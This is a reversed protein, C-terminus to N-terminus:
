AAPAVPGRPRSIRGWAVIVVGLLVLGIAGAVLSATLGRPRYEVRYTEGARLDVSWSPFLFSFPTGEEGRFRWAHSYAQQVVLRGRFDASVRFELANAIERVDTARPQDAMARALEDVRTEIRTRPTWADLAPADAEDLLWVRPLPDPLIRGGAPDRPLALDPDFAFDHVVDVGLFRLAGLRRTDIRTEAFVPQLIFDRNALVFTHSLFSKLRTNCVPDFVGITRLDIIANQNPPYASMRLRGLGEDHPAEALAGGFPLAYRPLRPFWGNPRVLAAQAVVIALLIVATGRPRWALVVAGAVFAACAAGYTWAVDGRVDAPLAAFAAPVRAFGDRALGGAWTGGVFVGALVLTVCATTLVIRRTRAPESESTRALTELAMAALVAALDFIWAHYKVLLIESLFPVHALFGFPWAWQLKVLGLLALIAYARARTRASWEGDRTTFALVAGLALLLAGLANLDTMWRVNGGGDFRHPHFGSAHPLFLNALGYPGLTEVARLSSSATAVDGASRAALYPVFAIAAIATSTALVAGVVLPRSWARRPDPRTWWEVAFVALAVLSVVFAEQLAGSTVLAVHALALVGLTGRGAEGRALRTCAWLLWPAWAHARFHVMDLHQTAVGSTGVLIAAVLAFSPRAHQRTLAYLGLVYLVVHALSFADFLWPGDGPLLLLVPNAVYVVGPQLSELLPAGLGNHFNVLPVHGDALARRVLVLWAEDQCAAAGPDLVPVVQSGYPTTRTISCFATSISYGLLTVPLFVLGVVGVVFAVLALPRARALWARRREDTTPDASM